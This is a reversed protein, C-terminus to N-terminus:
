SFFLMRCRSGPSRTILREDSKKIERISDNDTDFMAAIYEQGLGYTILLQKHCSSLKEIVAGQPLDVQFAKKESFSEGTGKSEAMGVSGNSGSMGNAGAMSGASGTSDASSMPACGGLTLCIMLLVCVARLGSKNRGRRGSFLNM